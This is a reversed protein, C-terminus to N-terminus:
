QVVVNREDLYVVNESPSFIVAEGEAFEKQRGLDSHLVDLTNESIELTVRNKRSEIKEKEEEVKDRLSTVLRQAEDREEKIREIEYVLKSKSLLERITEREGGLKVYLEKLDSDSKKFVTKQLTSLDQELEKEQRKKRARLDKAERLKSARSENIKRSELIQFNIEQSMRLYNNKITDEEIENKCLHCLEESEEETIPSFCSPCYKFAFTSFRERLNLSDELAKKKNQLSKIFSNSDQIKINLNRIRIDLEFIEERM